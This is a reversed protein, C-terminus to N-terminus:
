ECITGDSITITRSALAAVDPDHTVLIVTIGKKNLNIILNMIQDSTKSDLQGTPEDALLLSPENVIARAIAVRQQQGGSLECPYSHAKESLGTKALLKTANEEIEAYIEKRREKFDPRSAAHLKPALCINEFATYQPFLNFQQFVLGFSKQVDSAIIPPEKGDCSFVTEGNVCIEGSDPTELFNLCRLLTTKGGGSSGVVSLVQGKELEFSVGKLVETSGFNKKLNKVSLVAM